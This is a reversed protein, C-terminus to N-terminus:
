GISRWPARVGGADCAAAADRAVTARGGGATAAGGGPMGGRNNYDTGALTHTVGSYVVLVEYNMAPEHLAPARDIEVTECDIRTLYDQASFLIM